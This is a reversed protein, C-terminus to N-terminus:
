ACNGAYLLLGLSGSQVTLRSNQRQQCLNERYIVLRIHHEIMKRAVWTRFLHNNFVCRGQIQDLTSRLLLRMVVTKIDRNRYNM